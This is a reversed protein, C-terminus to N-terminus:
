RVQRRCEANAITEGIDVLHRIVRGEKVWNHGVGQVRKLVRPELM